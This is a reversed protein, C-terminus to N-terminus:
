QQNFDKKSNELDHMALSKMQEKSFVESIRGVNSLEAEALSLAKRYTNEFEAATIVINYDILETVIDAVGTAKAIHILETETKPRVFLATDINIIKVLDGFADKLYIPYEM